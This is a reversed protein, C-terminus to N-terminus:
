VTITFAGLTQAPVFGAAGQSVSDPALSLTYQGSALQGTAPTIRYRAHLTGDLATSTSLISVRTARNNPAAVILNAGTISSTVLLNGPNNFVVEVEWASPTATFPTVSAIAPPTATFPRITQLNTAGISQGNAALVAGARTELRAYTAGGLSTGDPSAFRYVATVSGDAARTPTGVLLSTIDRAMTFINLTRLTLGIDNDGLSSLQIGSPADYRVTAVLAAATQVTSVIRARPAATNVTFQRAFVAESVPQGLTPTLFVTITYTGNDSFDWGGGPAELDLVKTDGSDFTQRYQPLAQTNLLGTVSGDPHTLTADLHVDGIRRVDRTRYNVTIRASDLNDSFQEGIGTGIHPAELSVFEVVPNQFALGFTRLTAQANADASNVERVAGAQLVATYDGNDARFDWQGLPSPATFEYVVTASGDTNTITQSAHGLRSYGHPGTLRIDDDGITAPDIPQDSSYNVITVLRTATTYAGTIVGSVLGNSGVYLPRSLAFGLVSGDNARVENLGTRLLAQPGGHASWGGAPAAMQYTATVSGDTAVSPTGVLSATLLLGDPLALKVDGAGLSSLNIGAADRYRMTVTLDRPTLSANVLTGDVGDVAVTYTQTFSSQDDYAGDTAVSLTYVGSDSDNWVPTVLNDGTPGPPPFNLTVVARYGAGLRVFTTQDSTLSVAHDYGNPGTLRATLTSAVRDRPNDYVDWNLTVRATDFASVRGFADPVPSFGTGRLALPAADAPLATPFQFWLGFTRMAVADTSGGANDAVGGAVSSLVYDGNDRIFQWRNRNPAAFTYRAGATAGGYFTVQSLVSPRDYGGGAKVLRLDGAGLTDANIQHGSTDTYFVEVVVDSATTTALTVSATIGSLLTRPELAELHPHASVRRTLPANM